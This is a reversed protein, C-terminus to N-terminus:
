LYKGLKYKDIIQNYIQQRYKKGLTNRQTIGYFGFGYDGGIAIVRYYDGWPYRKPIKTLYANVRYSQSSKPGYSFKGLELRINGDFPRAKLKMKKVVFEQILLMLGDSSFDVLKIDNDKAFKELDGDYAWNLLNEMGGFFDVAYQVGKEKLVRKIQKALGASDQEQESEFLQAYSEKKLQAFISQFIKESISDSVKLKKIDFFPIDLYYDLVGRFRKIRKFEIPLNGIELDFKQLFVPPDKYEEYYKIKVKGNKISQLIVRGIVEEDGKLFDRVKSFLSKDVPQKAIRALVDSIQNKSIIYNM